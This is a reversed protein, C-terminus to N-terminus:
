KGVKLYLVREETAEFGLEQRLSSRLDDSLEKANYEKKHFSNDILQKILEIQKPTGLLQITLLAESLSQYNRITDFEVVKRWANILYQIKIERQKNELDRRKSLRHVFFWGGIVLLWGVVSIIITIIAPNEVLYNWFACM